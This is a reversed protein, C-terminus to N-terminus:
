FGLCKFYRMNLTKTPSKTTSTSLNEKSVKQHTTIEKSFHSPSTKSFINNADKGSSKYFGDNPTHKFTTKKSIQSEV